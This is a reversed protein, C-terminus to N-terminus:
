RKEGKDKPWLAQKEDKEIIFRQKKETLWKGSIQICGIDMGNKVLGAEQLFKRVSM